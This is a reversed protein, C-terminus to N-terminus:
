NSWTHEKEFEVIYRIINESFGDIQNWKGYAVGNRYDAVNIMYARKAKPAPVEDHSQEDTICILRDFPLANMLKVASGCYTSGHPQSNVIADRLAFGRRPAIPITENSFSFVGVDECLERAVMALGCAADVRRLDSRQSLKADMSGSVDILLGTSGALKPLGATCAFFAPELWHEWQPVARAAAIFRHPLVRTTDMKELAMKVLEPDVKAEHMNRLNRLLALPGLKDDIILRTFTECKDAGASLEVEWTDPTELERDVVKRYLKEGPTLRFKKGGERELKRELKTYRREPADAPKSHSLFLSDRLKVPGDRDYKALEYENFKPFAKALGKKVQASVTQKPDDKWYLALFEALEDARQIVRELTKAVLRRHEVPGRAMERVLLLPVHRLKMMERAYVALESVALASVQPVLHKIREAIEVGSEYFQDEWLFCAMTARRLATMQNPMAAAAAGEHTREIKAPTAASPKNIKM